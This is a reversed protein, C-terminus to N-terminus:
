IGISEFVAQLQLNIKTGSLDPERFSPLFQWGELDLFVLQIRVMMHVVPLIYTHCKGAKRSAEARSPQPSFILHLSM